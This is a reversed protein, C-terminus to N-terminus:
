PANAPRSQNKNNEPKKTSDTLTNFKDVALNVLSTYNKTSGKGYEYTKKYMKKATEIDGQEEYLLGLNLYTRPNKNDIKIAQELFTQAKIYQKNAILAWAHINIAFLDQPNKDLLIQSFELAIEPKKIVDVVTYIATIFKENETNENLLKKYIEIVKDYKKQTTFIELLKWQVEETFEFDFELSKEFFLAAETYQKNEFLSLAMFYHIEPRISDLKYAHRFDALAETYNKQQYYTYGRIIWADIYSSDEQIATNAFEQALAYENNESLVKAQMALLHANQGDKFNSFESYTVVLQSVKEALESSIFIKKNHQTKLGKDTIKFKKNEVPLKELDKFISKATEQDNQLALLLGKYFLLEPPLNNKRNLIKIGEIELLL